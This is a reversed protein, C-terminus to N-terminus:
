LTKIIQVENPNIYAMIHNKRQLKFFCTICTDYCYCNWFRTRVSFEMLVDRVSCFNHFHLITFICNKLIFYNNRYNGNFTSNYMYVTDRQLISDIQLACLFLLNSM